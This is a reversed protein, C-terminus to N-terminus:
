EIKMTYPNAQTGQGGDKIVIDKLLVVPRVGHEYSTGVMAGSYFVNYIHYPKSYASYNSYNAVYYSAYKGSQDKTPIAFLNNFYSTLYMGDTTVNNIANDIDNKVMSQVVPVGSSNTETYINTFATKLATMSTINTKTGSSSMTYFGNRFFRDETSTSTFPTNFFNTTLNNVSTKVEAETLKNTFVYTMPVGATVIRVEKIGDGDEDRTTLVRWNTFSDQPIYQGDENTAVNNYYVFPYLVYDGPIVNDALLRSIWKAYLTQNADGTTVQTTNTIKSGGGNSATYWGDFTHGYRTPTPLSGYSGYRYVTKNTPSVSGGSANFTIVIPSLNITVPIVIEEGVFPVIPVFRLTLNEVTNLNDVNAIFEIDFTDIFKSGGDLIKNVTNNVVSEGDIVVEFKSNGDVIIKYQESFINFEDNSNFNAISVPLIAKGNGMYIDANTESNFYLPAVNIDVSFNKDICYDLPYDNYLRSHLDVNVLYKEDKYDLYNEYESNWFIKLVFEKDIKEGNGDLKFEGVVENGLDDYIKSIFRSDSSIDFYYSLDEGSILSDNYNSIKFPIEKTYGPYFYEVYKEKDNDLELVPIDIFKFNLSSKLINNLNDTLGLKKYEDSYKFTIKFDISNNSNIVNTENTINEVVYDISTNINGNGDIYLEEDYLIGAFYYDKDSSNYISVLITLTSNINNLSLEVNSNLVTDSSVLVESTTLNADVNDIISTKQIFLDDTEEVLAFGLLNLASSNVSAYGIGFFISIILILIPFLRKFKVM